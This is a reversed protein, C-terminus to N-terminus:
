IICVLYTWFRSRGSRSKTWGKKEESERKAINPVSERRLCERENEPTELERDFEGESERDILALPLGQVDDAKVKSGVYETV